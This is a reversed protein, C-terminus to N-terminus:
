VGGALEKGDIQSPRSGGLEEFRIFSRLHVVALLWAAGAPWRHTAAAARARACASGQPPTHGTSPQRPPPVANVAATTVPVTTAAIVAACCLAHTHTPYLRLTAHNAVRVQHAPPSTFRTQLMVVTGGVAAAAPSAMHDMSRPGSLWMTATLCSCKSGMPYSWSCPGLGQRISRTTCPLLLPHLRCFSSPHLMQQSGHNRRCNVVHWHGSAPDHDQRAPLAHNYHNVHSDCVALAHM